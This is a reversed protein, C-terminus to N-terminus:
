REMGSTGGIRWLDQPCTVSTGAALKQQQTSCMIRNDARELQLMAVAGAEGLAAASPACRSREGRPEGAPESQDEPLAVGDIM